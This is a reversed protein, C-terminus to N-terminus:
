EEALFLLFVKIPPPVTKKIKKPEQIKFRDNDLEESQAFAEKQQKQFYGGDKKSDSLLQTVEKNETGFTMKGLREVDVDLQERVKQTNHEWINNVLMGTIIALNEKFVSANADYHDRFNFEQGEAQAKRGIKTLEKVTFTHEKEFIATLLEILPNLYGNTELQKLITLIDLYKNADHHIKRKFDVLDVQSKSM